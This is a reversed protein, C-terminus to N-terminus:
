RNRKKKKKGSAAPAAASADVFECLRTNEATLLIQGDSLTALDKFIRRDEAADPNVALMQKKMHNAILLIFDNRDPDDPSLSLATNIMQPVMQGYQRFRIRQQPIPLPRPRSRLEQEQAIEVPYDIDLKFDSMIALHDWLKLRWEPSVKQQPFLACLTKLIARACQNREERDEITLCYDVMQQIHRGYEPMPLRPQMTNYQLM